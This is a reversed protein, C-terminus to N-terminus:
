EAGSMGGAILNVIDEAIEMMEAAAVTMRLRSARAMDGDHQALALCERLSSLRVRKIKADAIEQPSM